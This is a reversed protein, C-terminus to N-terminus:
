IKIITHLKSNIDPDDGVPQGNHNVWAHAMFSYKQIGIHLTFDAKKSILYDALALSSELCETKFPLWRGARYIASSFNKVRNHYQCDGQTKHSNKRIRQLQYHLGFVNLLAKNKILLWTAEILEILKTEEKRFVWINRWQHAGIGPRIGSEIIISAQPSNSPKLINKSILESIIEKHFNEPTPKKLFHMINDSEERSFFYFEDNKEQLIILEKETYVYHTHETLQFKKEDPHHQADTRLM